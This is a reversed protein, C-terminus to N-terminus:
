GGKQAQRKIRWTKWNKQVMHFSLYYHAKFSNCQRQCGMTTQKIWNSEVVYMLRKAFDTGNRGM